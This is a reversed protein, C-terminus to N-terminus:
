LINSCLLSACSRTRGAAAALFSHSDIDVSGDYGPAAVANAACKAPAQRAVAYRDDDGVQLRICGCADSGIDAADCM